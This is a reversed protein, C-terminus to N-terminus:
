DLRPMAEMMSEVAEHHFLLTIMCAIALWKNDCAFRVVVCAVMLLNWYVFKSMSGDFMTFMTKAKCTLPIYQFAVYAALGVNNNPVINKKKLTSLFAIVQASALGFFDAGILSEAARQGDNNLLCLLM